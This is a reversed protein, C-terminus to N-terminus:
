KYEIVGGAAVELTVNWLDGESWRLFPAKALNWAGAVAVTFVFLSKYPGCSAHAAHLIFSSSATDRAVTSAALSVRTDGAFSPVHQNCCAAPHIHVGRSAIVAHVAQVHLQMCCYVCM